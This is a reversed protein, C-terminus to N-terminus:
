ANEYENLSFRMVVQTSNTDSDAVFYLVDSETLKFGIPETIEVHNEIATDIETRFIEFRTSVNRNFVYGKITITPSGGSGQLRLANINLYKAIAKSNYACHFICQQTVSQEAPIFAQKTGGTTETITIDNANFNDSGSASVSVRNIGLGSFSTVDSGTSGLVHVTEREIGDSDLYDFFLQTAGNNGSGDTGNNYAITYTSASTQPTFNGTTAWITQEGGGSSLDSRYGFKNFHRVGGRRGIVIEDQASTPRTTQADQDIGLAQNLPAVSPVFQNGYYTTLRLYTQAGVDNVLRCRFYRGLKVATHFEPINAAVKFGQVPFTSDWNSGDNSFDFYLVGSNDTKLMVGVQGFQNQEGTGTFTAGSGLATTSSNGTSVSGFSSSESITKLADGVNGIKTGDTDGKLKVWGQIQNFIGKLM